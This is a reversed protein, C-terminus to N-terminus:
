EFVKTKGKLIWPGEGFDVGASGKRKRVKAGM